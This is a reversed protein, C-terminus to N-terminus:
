SKEVVALDLIARPEPSDGSLKARRTLRVVAWLGVAAIAILLYIWGQEDEIWFMIPSRAKFAGYMTYGAQILPLMDRAEQNKPDLQIARNIEGVAAAINGNAAWAYGLELRSGSENPTLSVGQQALRLSEACVSSDLSPNFLLCSALNGSTYPERPNLRIANRYCEIASRYGRFAPNNGLRVGVDTFMEAEIEDASLPNMFIKRAIQWDEVGWGSIYDEDSISRGRNPDWNVWHDKDLQARIFIHEPLLVPKLDFGIVEAVGMYLFASPGCAMLHFDEDAQAKMHDARRANHSLALAAQLGSASLQQGDLAEGLTTTWDYPPFIFNRDILISDITAFIAILQQERAAPDTIAPDYHVRSKVETIIQDLLEYSDDPIPVYKAELDLFRHAVTQYKRQYKPPKTLFGYVAMSGFFAIVALLVLIIKQRPSSSQQPSSM